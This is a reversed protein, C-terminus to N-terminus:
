NVNFIVMDLKSAYSAISNWLPNFFKDILISVLMIICTFGGIMALLLIPLNSVGYIREIAPQILEYLVFHQHHIIYVALVSSALWNICRSKLHISGFVIFLTIANLILIPSCYPYSLRWIVDGIPTDHLSLWSVVLLVNLILWLLAWYVSKISEWYHKFERLFDGVVYLFIFLIVNKGDKLSPEGLCGMYVALVGTVILLYLKHTKSKLFSNIIPSLLYLFVYVRIFWYPSKTIFLLNKADGVGQTLEYITLPLYFLIIPGILKIIGRLSPKIHYYGSILVFCIVAVHLPLWLAQYLLNDDINCVFFCM